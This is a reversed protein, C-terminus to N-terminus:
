SYHKFVQHCIRLAAHQADVVEKVTLGVNEYRVGAHCQIKEILKREIPPQGLEETIKTLQELNHGKGGKPYSGGRLAILSKLTKEVAQLSAWKSLGLEPPRHLLHFTSAKFDAHAKALLEDGRYNHINGFVDMGLMFLEGIEDFAKGTLRSALPPTLDVIFDLINMKGSSGKKGMTSPDIVAGVRGYVTPLRMKFIDGSIEIAIVGIDFDVKLKEGYLDSFWSNIRLALDYGSYVGEKPKRPVFGFGGMPLTIGLKKSVKGCAVIQRATVPIEETIMEADIEQMLKQFEVESTIM